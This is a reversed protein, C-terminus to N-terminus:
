LKKGYHTAKICVRRITKFVMVRGQFDVIVNRLSSVQNLHGSQPSAGVSPIGRFVSSQCLGKGTDWTFLLFLWLTDSELLRPYASLVRILSNSSSHISSLKCDRLKIRAAVHTVLQTVFSAYWCRQQADGNRSSCKAAWGDCSGPHLVKSTCM